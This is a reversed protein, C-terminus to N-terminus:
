CVGVTLVRQKVEFVALGASRLVLTIGSALVKGAMECIATLQAHSIYFNLSIRDKTRIIDRPCQQIKCVIYILM